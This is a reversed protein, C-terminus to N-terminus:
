TNTPCTRAESQFRRVPFEAPRTNRGTERGAKASSGVNNSQSNQLWQLEQQLHLVLQLAILFQQHATDWAQQQAQCPNKEIVKEHRDFGQGQGTYGPSHEVGDPYNAADASAQQECQELAALAADAAKQANNLDMQAALLLLKILDIAGAQDSSNPTPTPTPSPPTPVGTPVPTPTPTPGGATMTGPENPMCVLTEDGPLTVGVEPGAESGFGIHLDFNHQNVIHQGVACGQNNPYTVPQGRVSGISMIALVAVLVRKAHRLM